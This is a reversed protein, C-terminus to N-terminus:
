GRETAAARVDRDSCIARLRQCVHWRKPWKKRCRSAIEREKALMKTVIAALEEPLEAREDRISPVPQTALANLKKIM